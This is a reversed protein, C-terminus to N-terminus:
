GGLYCKCEELSSKANVQIIKKQYQSGNPTYVEFEDIDIDWFGPSFIKSFDKDGHKFVAPDKNDVFTELHFKSGELAVLAVNFGTKEKEDRKSRFRAQRVKFVYCKM